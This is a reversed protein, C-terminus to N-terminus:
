PTKCQSKNCAKFLPKWFAFDSLPKIINCKKILVLLFYGEFFKPHLHEPPDPSNIKKIMWSTM